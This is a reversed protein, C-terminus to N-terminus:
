SVIMDCNEMSKKGCIEWTKGVFKGRKEWTKGMFKGRKEWLILMCCIAM